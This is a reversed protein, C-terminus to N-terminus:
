GGFPLSGEEMKGKRREVAAVFKMDLLSQYESSVYSTEASKCFAVIVILAGEVMLQVMM